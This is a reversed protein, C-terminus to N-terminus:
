RTTTSQLLFKIQAIARRWARFLHLQKAAEGAPKFKLSGLRAETEALLERLEATSKNKLDVFDM